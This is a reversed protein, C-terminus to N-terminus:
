GKELLMARFGAQVFHRDATLADTLGMERMVEFSICDTLGWDKDRRSSYFRLGRRLLASDVPVIRVVGGNASSANLFREVAEAARARDIASLANGLEIMVAETSVVQRARVVRRNWELARQHLQDERSYLAQLFSTDLFFREASM